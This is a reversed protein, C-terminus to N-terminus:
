FFKENIERHILNYTDHIPDKSLDSYWGLVEYYHLTNDQLDDMGNADHCGFVSLCNPYFAGFDPLGYGAATLHELYDDAASGALDDSFIRKRGIYRFPQTTSTKPKRTSNVDIPYVATGEPVETGEPYLYDSEILWREKLSDTWKKTVLWRNPVAPYEIAGQENQKGQM